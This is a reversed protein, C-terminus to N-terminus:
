FETKNELRKIAHMIEGKIKGPAPVMDDTPICQIV